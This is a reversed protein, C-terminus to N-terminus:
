KKKKKALVIVIESSSDTYTGSTSQIVYAYTDDALQISQGPKPASSFGAAVLVFGKQNELAGATVTGTGGSTFTLTNGSAFTGTTNKIYVKNATYQVNTVIGTAGSSSTVTDGINITGGGYLFNLQQGVLNGTVATETSDFGRSVAGWTGYSNNGNLARIHGGGTSAYGFYCYYTFCSVIEAKGGDKIWYGVGNDSIVTYGHFIMTKAGSAHVSGDVLAGIAGACIASCELIYPSKTTVPSDPNLRAVVGKISSTTIDAATTGPVWGTMGIFTMKNLISGNSLLWMTSQNNATVGDDSLGTKPQVITTRQNDGVIAVGAPVTIPLQESYTGTKVFITSGPQAQQCAYKISAFPASLNKGSSINDQGHPAVYYVNASQTAGIWDIGSGNALVTLSQGADGAQIVPLM